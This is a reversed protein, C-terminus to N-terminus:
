HRSSVPNLDEPYYRWWESKLINGGEIYPKQQYLSAFDRPNLRERRRLEELPFREPWLAVEKEESIYRKAKAINPLEGAEVYM